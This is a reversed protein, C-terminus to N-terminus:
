YFHLFPSKRKEFFDGFKSVKGKRCLWKRKVMILLVIAGACLLCGIAFVWGTRFKVEEFKPKKHEISKPQEAETKIRIEDTTSSEDVCGGDVKEVRVNGLVMRRDQWGNQENLVIVSGDSLKITVAGESGSGGALVFRMENTEQTKINKASVPVPAALFLVCIIILAKM